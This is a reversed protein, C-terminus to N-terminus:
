LAHALEVEGGGGTTRLADRSSSAMRYDTTYRIAGAPCALAEEPSFLCAGLDLEPAGDEQVRIAGSPARLGCERCVATCRSPDLVVRGRFREPLATDPPPFATTRIGQRM